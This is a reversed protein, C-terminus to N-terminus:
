SKRKIVLVWYVEESNAVEFEFSSILSLSHINTEAECHASHLLNM